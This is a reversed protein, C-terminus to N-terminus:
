TRLPYFASVQAIDPIPQFSVILKQKFSSCIAM